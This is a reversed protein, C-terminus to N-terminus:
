LPSRGLEAGCWSCNPSRRSLLKHGCKPCVEDTMRVRGDLKGDMLDVERVAEVLEADTYGHKTKLLEWLGACALELSEIRRNAQQSVEETKASVDVASAGASYTPRFPEFLFGLM